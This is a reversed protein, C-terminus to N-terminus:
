TRGAGLRLFVTRHCSTVPDHGFEDAVRLEVFQDLLEIPVPGFLRPREWRPWRCQNWAAIRDLAQQDFRRTAARAIQEDQGARLRNKSDVAAQRGGISSM